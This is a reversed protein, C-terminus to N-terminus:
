RVESNRCLTLVSIQSEKIGRWVRKKEGHVRIQGLEAEFQGHVIFLTRSAWVMDLIGCKGVLLSRRPFEEGLVSHELSLTFAPERDVGGPWENGATSCLSGGWLWQRPCISLWSSSWVQEQSLRSICVKRGVNDKSASIWSFTVLFFQIRWLVPSPALM